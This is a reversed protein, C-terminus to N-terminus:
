QEEELGVGSAETELFAGFGSLMRPGSSAIWFRTGAGQGMLVGDGSTHKGRQSSHCDSALLASSGTLLCVKQTGPGVSPM